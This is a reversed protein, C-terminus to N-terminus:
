KSKEKKDKGKRKSDKKKEEKKRKKEEETEPMEKRTGEVLAEAARVADEEAGPLVEVGKGGLAAEAAATKERKRKREGRPSSAAGEADKEDRKRKREAKEKATEKTTAASAGKPARFKPAAAGGMEVDGDGDEDESGSGIIGPDGEGFGIPRFRMRMGKPQPRPGRTAPRTVQAAATSGTAPDSQNASLNPLTIVQQLVLSKTVPISTASYGADNPILLKKTTKSSQEEALTYSTGKHTLLSSQNQIAALSVSQLQSLPVSAPATIHWIQKDSTNSLLNTLTKTSTKSPKLPQFGPPPVFPQPAVAETPDAPPPRSSSVAGNQAPAADPMDEDDDSDDTDPSIREASKASDKNKGNVGAKKVNKLQKLVDAEDGEDDSSDDDSSDSSDSPVPPSNPETAKARALKPKKTNKKKEAVSDSESGSSSESDSESDDSSSQKTIEVNHAPAKRATTSAKPAKKPDQGRIAVKTEKAKPM